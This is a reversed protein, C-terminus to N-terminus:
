AEWVLVLRVSVLSLIAFHFNLKAARLFPSGWRCILYVWLASSMRRALRRHRENAAANRSAANVGNLRDGDTLLRHATVKM